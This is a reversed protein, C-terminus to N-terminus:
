SLSRPDRSGEPDFDTIRELFDLAREETMRGTVVDAIRPLVTREDMCYALVVTRTERIKGTQKGIEIWEHLRPYEHIDM